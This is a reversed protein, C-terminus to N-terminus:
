EIMGAARLKAESALEASKPAEGQALFEALVREKAYLSAMARTANAFSGFASLGLMISLVGLGWWEASAPWVAWAGIGFACSMLFNLNIGAVAGGNRQFPTM